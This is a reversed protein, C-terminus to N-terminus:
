NPGNPKKNLHKVNSDFVAHGLLGVRVSPSKKNNRKSVWGKAETSPNPSLFVFNNIREFFSNILAM